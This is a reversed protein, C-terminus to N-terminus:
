PISTETDSKPTAGQRRRLSDDQHGEYPDGHRHAKMADEHPMGVTHCRMIIYSTMAPQRERGAHPSM